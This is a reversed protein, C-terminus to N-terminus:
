DVLKGEALQSLWSIGLSDQHLRRSPKTVPETFEPTFLNTKQLYTFELSGTSESSNNLFEIKNILDKEMDVNYVATTEGHLVSVDANVEGATYNTEFM